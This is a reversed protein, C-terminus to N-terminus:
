IKEEPVTTVMGVEGRCALADINPKVATELPTKGGLEEVPTDAAGDTLIVVYKM